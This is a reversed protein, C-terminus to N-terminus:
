IYPLFNYKLDILAEGIQEVNWGHEGWVDFQNVVIVARGERKEFTTVLWGAVVVYSQTYFIIRVFKKRWVNFMVKITYKPSYRGMLLAQLNDTKLLIM